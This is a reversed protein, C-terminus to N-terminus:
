IDIAQYFAQRVRKDKFPNKGKINSFLLEDRAQDMGLFITRLEPGQLMKLSSVAKMKDIDQLPVPEMMDIDGSILAAVRTADNKIPTFVAETVNSEVKEWYGPNVVFVTRVGPERSKLMFPGTGNARLTAANEKGKRVDVPATANNKECWAKSMIYWTNLTDPLIPFPDNTVFDVTHDDIKRIEKVTAIKTKMDSGDEKSREYSFIVDDATFATGDHFKVNRRLNFRWVTPETQKWATALLPVLELKKGRGVLPEYVNGLLSLQLSENLSHPDMSTADGQDAFKYTAALAGTAGAVIAVAFLFKLTRM